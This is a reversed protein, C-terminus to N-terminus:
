LFLWAMLAVLLLGGLAMLKACAKGECIEGAQKAAPRVHQHNLPDDNAAHCHLVEIGTRKAAREAAARNAAEIELRTKAGTTQNEGTIVYLM